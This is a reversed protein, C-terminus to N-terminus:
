KCSALQALKAQGRFSAEIDPPVNFADGPGLEYTAGAVALTAPGDLVFGFCLEGRHTLEVTRDGSTVRVHALDATADAVGDVPGHHFRQGDWLRDPRPPAPTPLALEHDAYTAHIAPCGLEVVELGPSSELVRHRIRPPQVVCEGARLVFPEGQDEYVLRV